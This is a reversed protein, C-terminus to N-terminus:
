LEEQPIVAKRIVGVDTVIDTHHITPLIADDGERKAVELWEENSLDTGDIRGPVRYEIPINQSVRESLMMGGFSAGDISANGYEEVVKGENDTIRMAGWKGRTRKDAEIVFYGNSGKKDRWWLVDGIQMDQLDVHPQELLFKAMQVAEIGEGSIVAIPKQLVDPSARMLRDIVEFMKLRRLQGPTPPTADDRFEM